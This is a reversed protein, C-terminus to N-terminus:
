DEINFVFGSVKQETNLINFINKIKLGKLQDSKILDDKNGFFIFKDDPWNKKCDQLSKNCVPSKLYFAVADRIGSYSIIIYNKYDYNEKFFHLSRSVQYNFNQTPYSYHINVDKKQFFKYLFLLSISCSIIILSFIIRKFVFDKFFDKLFLFIVLNVCFSSLVYFRETELDGRLLFLFFSNICIFFILSIIALNKKKIFYMLIYILFLFNLLAIITAIKSHYGFLRALYLYHSANFLFDNIALLTPFISFNKLLSKEWKYNEPSLVIERHLFFLFISFIILFITKYKLERRFIENFLILAFVTLHQIRFILGLLLFFFGFTNIKNTRIYNLAFIILAPYYLSEGNLGILNNINDIQFYISLSILLAYTKLNQKDLFFFIEKYAYFWLFFCSLFYIIFWLEELLYYSIYFFYVIGLQFTRSGEQIPWYNINILKNYYFLGKAYGFWEAGDGTLKYSKLILFLFISQCTLM